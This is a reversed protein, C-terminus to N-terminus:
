GVESEEGFPVPLARGSGSDNGSRGAALKEELVRDVKWGTRELVMELRVAWVSDDKRVVTCLVWATGDQLNLGDAVVRVGRVTASDFRERVLRSADAGVSALIKQRRRSSLLQWPDANNADRLGFWAAVVCWVKGLHDTPAPPAMVDAALGRQPLALRVCRGESNVWAGFCEAFFRLPVFFEGHVIEAALSVAVPKGELVAVTEGARMALRPRSLDAGAVAADGRIELGVGLWEALPKAPVLVTGGRNIPLVDFVPGPDVGSAQGVSVLLYVSLAFTQVM